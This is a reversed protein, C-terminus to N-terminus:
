FKVWKAHLCTYTNTHTNTQDIIQISQRNQKNIKQAAKKWFETQNCENWREKERRARSKMVRSNSAFIVHMYVCECACLVKNENKKPKNTQKQIMEM